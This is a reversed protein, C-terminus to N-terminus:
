AKIWDWAADRADLEFFRVDSRMLLDMAKAATKEWSKNGVIAMKEFHHWHTM